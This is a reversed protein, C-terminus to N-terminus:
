PRKAYDPFGCVTIKVPKPQTVECDQRGALETADRWQAYEDLGVIFALALIFGIVCGIIEHALWNM